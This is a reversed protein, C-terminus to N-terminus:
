FSRVGLAAQAIVLADVITVAGDQNADMTADSARLGLAAQAVQLADVITVESDGNADGLSAPPKTAELLEVIQDVGEEIADATAQVEELPAGEAILDALAPEDTANENFSRIRNEIENELPKDVLAVDPGLGNTEFTFFAEDAAQEAESAQGQEYLTVAENVKALVEDAAAQIAEDTKLERQSAPTHEGKNILVLRNLSPVFEDAIAQV